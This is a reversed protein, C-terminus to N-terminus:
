IDTDGIVQVHSDPLMADAFLAPSKRLAIVADVQDMAFVVAVDLLGDRTFLLELAPPPRLLVGQNCLRIRLPVIERCIPELLCVDTM